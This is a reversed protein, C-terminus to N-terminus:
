LSTVRAAHVVVEDEAITFLITINPTGAIQDGPQRYVHYIDVDAISHKIMKHAQRALKWELARWAKDFRPINRTKEDIIRRALDGLVVTRYKRWIM